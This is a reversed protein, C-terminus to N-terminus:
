CMVQGTSDKRARPEPNPKTPQFLYKKLVRITEICLSSQSCWCALPQQPTSVYYYYYYHVNIAHEDVGQASMYYM